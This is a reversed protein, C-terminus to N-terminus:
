CSSRSYGPIKVNCVGDIQDDRAIQACLHQDSITKTYVKQCATRNVVDARAYHLLNDTDGVESPVRTLPDVKLKIWNWGFGSVLASEGDYTTRNDEPLNVKRLYWGDGM